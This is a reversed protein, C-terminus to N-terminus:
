TTFLSLYDNQRYVSLGSFLGISKLFPIADVRVKEKKDEGPPKLLLSFPYHVDM